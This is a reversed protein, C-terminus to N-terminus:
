RHGVRDALIELAAERGGISVMVRQFRHTSHCCIVWSDDRSCVSDRGVRALVPGGRARPLHSFAYEPDRKGQRHVTELRDVDIDDRCIVTENQDVAAPGNRLRAFEEVAAQTRQPRPKAVDLCKRTM